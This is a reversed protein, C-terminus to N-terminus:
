EWVVVIALRWGAVPAGMPSVRGQLGHERCGSVDLHCVARNAQRIKRRSPACPSLEASPLIAAPTVFLCHLPSRRPILLVLILEPAMERQLFDATGAAEVIRRNTSM